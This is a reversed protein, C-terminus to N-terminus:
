VAWYLVQIERLKNLRIIYEFPNIWFFIAANKMCGEPKKMREIKTLCEMSYWATNETKKQGERQNRYYTQQFEQGWFIIGIRYHKSLVNTEGYMWVTGLSETREEIGKRVGSYALWIFGKIREEDWGQRAKKKKKLCTNPNLAMNPCIGLRVWSREYYIWVQFLVEFLVNMKRSWSEM